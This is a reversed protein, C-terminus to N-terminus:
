QQLRWIQWRRWGRLYVFLCFCLYMIYVFVCFVISNAVFGTVIAIEFNTMEVWLTVNRNRFKETRSFLIPIPKSFNQYRFLIRNWFFINFFILNWCINPIVFILNRFDEQSYRTQLIDEKLSFQSIGMAISIHNCVCTVM